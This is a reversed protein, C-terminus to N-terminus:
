KSALSIYHNHSWPSGAQLHTKAQYLNKALAASTDAPYQDWRVSIKSLIIEGSVFHSFTSLFLCYGSGLYHM